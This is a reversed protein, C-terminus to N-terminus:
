QLYGLSRLFEKQENTLPKIQKEKFSISEREYKELVEKLEKFKDKRENVLNYQEQPDKVYNYLEYYDHRRILKWDESRISSEGEKSIYVYPHLNFKDKKFLSLLSKGQIYLPINIEMIELITPAVDILSVLQPIVKGRPFLRPFRIILPVRVNNEYLPGHTFYIEHEGLMEGHDAILIILTHKLLGLRKLSDMLCGIQVDTYSIAGDYQAIYYRIDSINDEAVIYPIKGEGRYPNSGNNSIPIEKKVRFKDDLYKSKYPEPPRYPVHLGEYHLYIFFASDKNEKLWKIVEVTLQHDNVEREVTYISDFGDKIDITDRLPGHNSFLASKIGKAQLLEPLTHISPNRPARWEGIDHIFPYTGTILSPLSEVTWSGATIAQTFMVGQHALEDINPSTNRKYGYCSLHDPRLADITILLVNLDASRNSVIFLYIGSSIVLSVLLVIFLKRKRYLIRM